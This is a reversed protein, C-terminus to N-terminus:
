ADGKTRRLLWRDGATRILTFTGQLQSGHITFKWHGEDQSVTEYSGADWISVQGADHQGVPISASQMIADLTALAHDCPTEASASGEFQGYELPHPETEVALVKDKEGSLLMPLHRVAWSKLVGAQALRFDYHLGAREAQHQQVVFTPETQDPAVVDGAPESTEGVNRKHQYEVLDQDFQKALRALTRRHAAPNELPHEIPPVAVKPHRKNYESVLSDLLEKMHDRTYKSGKDIEVGLNEPNPSTDMGRHQPDALYTRMHVALNSALDPNLGYTPILWESLDTEDTPYTKNEWDLFMRAVDGSNKIAALIVPDTIRSQPMLAPTVAEITADEERSMMVRDPALLLDISGVPHGASSVLTVKLPTFAQFAAADTPPVEGAAQIVSGSFSRNGREMRSQFTGCLTKLHELSDFPRTVFVTRGDAEHSRVPGFIDALISPSAEPLFSAQYKM